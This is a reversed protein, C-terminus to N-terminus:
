MIITVHYACCTDEEKELMKANNWMPPAYKKRTNYHNNELCKQSDVRSLSLLQEFSCNALLRNVQM